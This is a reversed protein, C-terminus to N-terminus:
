YPYIARVKDQVFGPQLVVRAVGSRHMRLEVNLVTWLSSAM